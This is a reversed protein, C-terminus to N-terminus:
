GHLGHSATRGSRRCGGSKMSILPSLVGLWAPAPARADFRAAVSSTLEAAGKCVSTIAQRTIAAPEVELRLIGIKKVMVARRPRLWEGHDLRRISMM